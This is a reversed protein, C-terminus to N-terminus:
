SLCSFYHNIFYINNYALKVYTCLTNYKNMTKLNTLHKSMIRNRHLM